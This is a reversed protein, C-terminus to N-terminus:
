SCFMNHSFWKCMDSNIFRKIFSSWRLQSFFYNESYICWTSKTFPIAPLKKTKLFVWQSVSEAATFCELSIPTLFYESSNLNYQWFVESETNTLHFHWFILISKARNMLTTRNEIKLSDNKCINADFVNRKRNFSPSMCPSQTKGCEVFDIQKQNNFM